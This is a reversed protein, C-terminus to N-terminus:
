FPAVNCDSCVRQGWGPSFDVVVDCRGCRECCAADFSQAVRDVFFMRPPDLGAAAVIREYECGAFCHLLWAIDGRTVDLSPKPDSHAPCAVRWADQGRKRKSKAFHAILEEAEYPVSRRASTAIEREQEEEERSGNTVRLVRKRNTRNKHSDFQSSRQDVPSSWIPSRSLGARPDTHRWELDHDLVLRYVIVHNYGRKGSDVLYGARVLEQQQNWVTQKTEGVMAGLDPAGVRCLMGDDVLDAITMLLFKAGGSLSRDRSLAKQAAERNERSM